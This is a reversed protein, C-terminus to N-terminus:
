FSHSKLPSVSEEKGGVSCVYYICIFTLLRNTRWPTSKRSRKTRGEFLLIQKGEICHSLLQEWHLITSQRQATADVFVYANKLRGLEPTNRYSICAQLLGAMISTSLTINIPATHNWARKATATEFNIVPFMKYSAIKFFPDLSM